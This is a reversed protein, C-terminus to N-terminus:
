PWQWVEAAAFRYLNRDRLITFSDELVYIPTVHWSSEPVRTLNTIADSEDLASIFIAFHFAAKLNCKVIIALFFRFGNKVTMM